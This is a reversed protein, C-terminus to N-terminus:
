ARVRLFLWLLLGAVGVGVPILWAPVGAVIEPAVAIREVEAKRAIQEARLAAEVALRKEAMERDSALKKAALERQLNAQTKALDDQLDASIKTNVASGIAGVLGGVLAGVWGLGHSEISGLGLELRGDRMAQLIAVKEQFTMKKVEDRVAKIIADPAKHVEKRLIPWLGVTHSYQWPELENLVSARASQNLALIPDPTKLLEAIHTAMAPSEEVERLLHQQDEFSLRGLTDGRQQVAELPGMILQVM